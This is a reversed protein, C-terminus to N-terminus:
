WDDDRIEIMTLWQLSHLLGTTVFKYKCLYEGRNDCHANYWKKSVDIFKISKWKLAEIKNLKKISPQKHFYNLWIQLKCCWIVHPDPFLWKAISKTNPMKQISNLVIIWNTATVREGTDLRAVTLFAALNATYSASIITVAAWWAGAVVRGSFSRPSM